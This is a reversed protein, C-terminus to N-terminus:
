RIGPSREERPTLPLDITVETGRGPESQLRFHGGLMWARERAGLLGFHGEDSWPDLQQTDFGVGDDRVAVTVGLTSLTLRVWVRDARAHRRVNDLLEGLM